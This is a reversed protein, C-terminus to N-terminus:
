DRWLYPDSELARLRNDTEDETLLKAIQDLSCEICGRNKTKRTGALIAKINDLHTLIKEYDDHDLIVVAKAM